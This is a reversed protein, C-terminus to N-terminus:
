LIVYVVKDLQTENAPATEDHMTQRVLPMYTRAHSAEFNSHILPLTCICENRRRAHANLAMYTTLRAAAEDDASHLQSLGGNLKL